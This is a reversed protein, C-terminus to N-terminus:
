VMERPGHLQGEKSPDVTELIYDGASPREGRLLHGIESPHQWNMYAMVLFMLLADFIYLFVENQLLYGDHGQIYEIARFICRIMILVSVVYLTTLYYRWRIEPQESKVTPVANMRKHFIAAVVIFSGFFVLQLILGGIIINQAMKISDPDDTGKAM